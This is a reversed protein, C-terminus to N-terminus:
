KQCCCKVPCLICSSGCEGTRFGAKICYKKCEVYGECQTDCHDFFDNIGADSVLVNHSSLSVALIIVLFCTVLTKTSSM